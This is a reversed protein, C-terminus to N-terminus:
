RFKLHGHCNLEEDIALYPVACRELWDLGDTPQNLLAISAVSGAVIAQAAAVSVSLLGEVPWGIRPDVLQSYRKGGVPVGDADNM